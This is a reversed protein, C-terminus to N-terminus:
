AEHFRLAIAAIDDHIKFRPYTLCRPDDKQLERVRRHILKLGGQRYLRVFAEVDEPQDPDTRPMFLGDTYLIIDTVGALSERGHRVFDLAQPEGNLVGYHINMGERVKLIQDALSDGITGTASPGREKWLRLTERDHDIPDALLRHSGDEYLVLALSDGIQFWELGDKDIRVVMCSTSWLNRRCNLDVGSVEMQERIDHNALTALQCLTGGNRSFVQAASEAALLGGTKGSTDGSKELSTAGDFVGYLNDAQLLIDENINGSGQELITEVANIRTQREITCVTHDPPFLYM